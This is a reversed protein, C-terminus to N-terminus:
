HQALPHSPDGQKGCAEQALALIPVAEARSCCAAWCGQAPVPPFARTHRPPAVCGQPEQVRLVNEAMWPVTCPWRSLQSLGHCLCLRCKPPTVHLPWSLGRPDSLALLPSRHLVSLQLTSPSPSSIGAGREAPPGPSVGQACPPMGMIDGCCSSSLLLGHCPSTLAQPRPLQLPLHPQPLACLLLLADPHSCGHSAHGQVARNRGSM